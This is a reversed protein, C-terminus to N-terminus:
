QQDNGASWITNDSFVVKQLTLSAKVDDHSLIGLRQQNAEFQNVTWEGESPATGGSPIKVDPPLQIAMLKEGLLDAFVITGEVLKISETRNRLVYSFFNGTKISM